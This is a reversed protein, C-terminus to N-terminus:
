AFRRLDLTRPHERGRDAAPREIPQPPVSAPSNGFPFCRTRRRAEASNANVPFDEYSRGGAHAAHHTMGGLARGTWRDIVDFLLLVQPRITPHLASPPNWAKFRIGSVQDGARGTAQLPVAVGNCALVHREALWGEARVQVREASSDVYRVTGASSQEEGLVHWPELAHRLELRMGRLAIEGLVPFRFPLHPAFWAPDLKIGLEELADDFDQECCQPLVLKDHLRSGWRVLPREYPTQWFAAVAARAEVAGSIPAASQPDPSAALPIHGEGTLLGSIADLGIWGAGPLYVEAWAHLDTFDATPGEPGDLPKVDGVQQILYGSVFRAAYGFQHLLQV